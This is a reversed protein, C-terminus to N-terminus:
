PRSIRGNRKRMYWEIAIQCIRMWALGAVILILILLWFEMSSDMLRRRIKSAVKATRWALVANAVQERQPIGIPPTIARGFSLIVM